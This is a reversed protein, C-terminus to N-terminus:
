KNVREFFPLLRPQGGSEPEIKNAEETQVPAMHWSSWPFEYQAALPSIRWGAHSLHLCFCRFLINGNILLSLQLNGDYNTGPVIVSKWNDIVFIHLGTDWTMRIWHLTWIHGALSNAHKKADRPRNAKLVMSCNTQKKHIQKVSYHSGKWQIYNLWLNLQPYFDISQGITVEPTGLPPRTPKIAALGIVWFTVSLSKSVTFPWTRRRM